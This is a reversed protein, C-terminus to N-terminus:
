REERKKTRGRSEEKRKHWDARHGKGKFLPGYEIKKEAHRKQKEKVKVEHELNDSRGCYLCRWEDQYQKAGMCKPYFVM